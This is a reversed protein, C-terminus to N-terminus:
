PEFFALDHNVLGTPGLVNEKIQVSAELQNLKMDIKVWSFSIFRALAVTPSDASFPFGLLLM